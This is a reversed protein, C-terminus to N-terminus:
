EITFDYTTVASDLYGLRGCKARLTWFRMRFTGDYLRWYFPAVRETTYIITSDETDCWLDVQPAGHHMGGRPYGVPAAATPPGSDPWPSSSAKGHSSSAHSDPTLPAPMASDLFARGKMNHPVAVGALALVTPSVDVVSVPDDRTTGAQLRDPLRVAIELGTAHLGLFFVATDDVLGDTELEALIDTVDRELSTEDSATVNFMSFFPRSDGAVSLDRWSRHGEPDWDLDRGRWDVDPGAADWAGLLGPQYQESADPVDDSEATGFSLNHLAPGSRSAYYGARRLREPLLVVGAPPVASLRNDRIGLDTLPMGTLLVSRTSASTGVSRTDAFRVGGGLLSEIPATAEGTPLDAVIWVINPPVPDEPASQEVTPAASRGCATGLVSVLAASAVIGVARRSWVLM